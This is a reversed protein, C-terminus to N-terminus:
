LHHKHGFVRGINMVDLSKRLKKKHSKLHQNLYKKEQFVKVCKECEFTPKEKM